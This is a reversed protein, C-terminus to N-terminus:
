FQWVGWVCSLFTIFNLCCNPVHRFSNIPTSFFKDISRWLYIIQSCSNSSILIYSLLPLYYLFFFSLSLCSSVDKQVLYSHQLTSIVCLPLDILKEPFCSKYQSSFLFQLSISSPPYKLSPAPFKSNLLSAFGSVFFNLALGDKLGIGGKWLFSGENINWVM